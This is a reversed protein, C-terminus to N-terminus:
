LPLVNESLKLFFFNPWYKQCGIATRPQSLPFFPFIEALPFPRLVYTKTLSPSSFSFLIIRKIKQFTIRQPFNSSLAKKLNLQDYFPFLLPFVGNGLHLPESSSPYFIKLLFVLTLFVPLGASFPFSSM